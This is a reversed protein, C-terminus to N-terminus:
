FEGRECGFCLGRGGRGLFMGGDRRAGVGREATYRRKWANVNGQVGVLCIINQVM